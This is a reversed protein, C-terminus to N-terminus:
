QSDLAHGSRLRLFAIGEQSGPFEMMLRTVSDREAYHISSVDTMALSAFCDGGAFPSVVDTMALLAIGGQTPFSHKIDVAAEASNQASLLGTAPYPPSPGLFWLLFVLPL